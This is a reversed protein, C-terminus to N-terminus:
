RPIDPARLRPTAAPLDSVPCTSPPQAPRWPYAPCPPRAAPAMEQGVPAPIPRFGEVRTPIPAAGRAKEARAQVKEKCGAAPAMAKASARDAAAEASVAKRQVAPRCPSPAPEALTRYELKPERNAPSSSAPAPLTGELM